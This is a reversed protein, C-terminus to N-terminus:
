RNYDIKRTADTEDGPGMGGGKVQKQEESNLEEEPRPLDKIETRRQDREDVPNEAM